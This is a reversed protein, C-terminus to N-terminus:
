ASHVHTHAAEQKVQKVLPQAIHYIYVICGISALFLTGGINLGGHFPLIPNTPINEMYGVM